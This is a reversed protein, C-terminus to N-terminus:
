AAAEKESTGAAEIASFGCPEYRSPFYFTYLLGGAQYARLYVTESPTFSGLVSVEDFPKEFEPASVTPFAGADRSQLECIAALEAFSVLSDGAYVPAGLIRDLEAAELTGFPLNQGWLFIRRVAPGSELATESSATECLAGLAPYAACATEGARYTHAPELFAEGLVTAPRDLFDSFVISDQYFRGTFLKRGSAGYLDGAGHRLGSQFDGQYALTGGAAYLTGSGDFLNRSFGGEYQLEGGSFYLRGQGEYRNASFAGEYVVGGDQGYLVGNGEALGGSLAGIYATYGGRALVRAEGTFNKLAHSSHRYAPLAKEGGSADPPAPLSGLLYWIGWIGALLLAAYALRRSILWRGAAFYDDKGRPRVDLFTSCAQQLKEPLFAFLSDKHYFPGPPLRPVIGNM